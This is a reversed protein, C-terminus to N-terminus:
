RTSHRFVPVAVFHSPVVEPLASMRSARDRMEMKVASSVAIALGGMAPTYFFYGFNLFTIAVCFGVMGVQIWLLASAMDQCDQRKRTQRYVSHFLLLTSLMGSAFFVFGPIGCESSVQTFSNHTDLYLGHTGIKQNHTGEYGSFESPGVGFIPHQLTYTLSQTLTYMRLASSETAEVQTDTQVDSFSDLREMVSKPTIVLLIAAALPTVILIATRHRAAGRLLVFLVCVSLAILAGRSATLLIQYVGYGTGCLAIIKIAASKSNLGMWLLFPLILLMHAAFDNPNSITGFDLGLRQGGIERAFVQGTIVMVVASWAIVRMISQCEKWTMAAGGMIFLMAYEARLYVMFTSASHGMWTSFPVTIGMWVVFATWFWAPRGQLTRKLGGSVTIGLLAPILLLYLIYFSTGLEKGMVMHIMSFRVFIVALALKFATRRAPDNITAQLVPDVDPSPLPRVPERQTLPRLPPLQTPRIVRAV